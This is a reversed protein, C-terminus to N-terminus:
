AKWSILAFKVSSMSLKVVRKFHKQVTSVDNNLPCKPANSANDSDCKINDKWYSVPLVNGELSLFPPGMEGETVYISSLFMNGLTRFNVVFRVTMFHRLFECRNQKNPVFNYYSTPYMWTYRLIDAECVKYIFSNWLHTL